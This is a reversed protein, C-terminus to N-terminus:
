KKGFRFPSEKLFPRLRGERGWSFLIVLLLLFLGLQDSFLDTNRIDSVTYANRKRLGLWSRGAISQNEARERIVPVGGDELWDIEGGSESTISKLKEDTAVLDLLEPPNIDGVVVPRTKIGDNLIYIGPTDATFQAELWHENEGPQAKITFSEGSPPQVELELMDRILRRQRVTIQNGSIEVDLATEDLSPEKMLWHVLRKLVVTYPGGGEFDRSWLWIHDSTIHGIRGDGQKSLILLPNEGVGNMLIDGKIADVSIQRGWRGWEEPGEALPLTVPHVQGLSTLKPKYLENIIQGKPRSPLIDQLPSNYLSGEGAYSPGSAILLAGGDEVYQRINYLYLPPLMNNLSYHDFIVLDFEDLKADFLEQFPFVILSMESSPTPDIKDPQRLITFHVLDVAPDSKLFNRWTREGINANGSVLLVRLRDRVGNVTLAASNNISTLENPLVDTSIKIVNQGAHPILMEIKQPQGLIAMETTTKGAAGTISVPVQQGSNAPSDGHDTVTFTVEVNKGVLGYTPAINLIVQRDFDSKSGAILAHIPTDIEIQPLSKPIDHVQGDTIFFIGSLRQPAIDALASRLAGFIQTDRPIENNKGGGAYVVNLDYPTEMQELQARLDELAKDSSSRREGTDMSPSEDMVVVVSNTLPTRTEKSLYPSALLALFVLGTILRFWIGRMHLFFGLFFLGLLFVLLCWWVFSINTQLSFATQTLTDLSNEFNM